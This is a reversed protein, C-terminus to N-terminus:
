TISTSLLNFSRDKLKTVEDEDGDKPLMVPSHEEDNQVELDLKKKISWECFEDFM